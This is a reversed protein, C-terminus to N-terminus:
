GSAARNVLTYTVTFGTTRYRNFAIVNAHDKSSTVVQNVDDSCCYRCPYPLPNSYHATYRSGAVRQDNQWKLEIGGYVCGGNCSSSAMQTIKMQIDKTPDASQLYLTMFRETGTVTVEIRWNCYAFDDVVGQSTSGLTYQLTQM